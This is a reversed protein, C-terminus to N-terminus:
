ESYSDRIRATFKLKLQQEEYQKLQEFGICDQIIKQQWALQQLLPQQKTQTKSITNNLETKLKELQRNLNNVQEQLNITKVKEQMLVEHANASTQQLAALSAENITKIETRLENIIQQQQKITQNNSHDLKTQLEQHLKELTDKISVAETLELQLQQKSTQLLQNEEKLKILTKEANILESAYFENQSIQKNLTQELTRKEEIWKTNPESCIQRGHAQEFCQQKWKFLYKHITLHSGCGGLQKRVKEITVSQHNSVLLKAAEIVQQESILKRVM